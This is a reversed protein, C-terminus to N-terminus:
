VRVMRYLPANASGFDALQVLRAIEAELAAVQKQLTAVQLGSLQRQYDSWSQRDGRGWRSAHYLTRYAAQPFPSTGKIWRYVTTKHVGCLRAAKVAGGVDEILRYITSETDM